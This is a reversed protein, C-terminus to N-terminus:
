LPMVCSDNKDQCSMVNWHCLVPPFGAIGESSNVMKSAIIAHGVMLSLTGITMLDESLFELLMSSYNNYIM